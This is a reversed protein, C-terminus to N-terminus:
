KAIFEDNKGSLEGAPRSTALGASMVDGPIEIARRSDNWTLKYEVNNPGYFHSYEIGWRKLDFFRLGDMVHDMRRLDNVANMYPVCEAPVDVGMNKAFSWDSYCNPNTSQKYYSLVQEATPMFMGYSTMQQVVESSFSQRSKILALIDDMAGSLNRKDKSLIKAEIRELLLETATFERRILHPYGIGQVKDTYEFDEGVKMAIYGYDQSGSYFLSGDQFATPCGNLGSGWYVGPRHFLIDKAPQGNFAFRTQTTRRQQISSTSLLMLNNNVSPDHWRNIYDEGTVCDKFITYDLLMASPNTGLVADAHEIVKDYDHKFLYFRAAFAHAANVNFHYKPATKYNVDSILKLGAELDNQIKAYVDAVNGRDYNVLVKDEPSTIYPIGVDNKSNTDDKYAQSFLNVLIFHSYARILLAEGKAATLEASMTGGHKKTYEDIAALAHNATAIGNYFSEWIYDPSDQQTNSKVQEFRFLEEDGRDYAALNYKALVQAASPNAPYHPANNDIINDSSLEGLWGYNGTPYASVLLKIINDETNLEIRNDPQQDLFDSCSTLSLLASVAILVTYKLKM